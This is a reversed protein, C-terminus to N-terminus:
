PMCTQLKLQLTSICKPMCMEHASGEKRPLPHTKKEVADKMKAKLMKGGGAKTYADNDVNCMRFTTTMSQAPEQEGALEFEYGALFCFDADGSADIVRRAVVKYFGSKNWFICSIRENGDKVVDVLHTHLFYKIGSQLILNIGFM